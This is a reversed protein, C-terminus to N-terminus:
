RGPFVERGPQRLRFPEEPGPPTRPPMNRGRARWQSVYWLTLAVVAAVVLAAAAYESPRFARPGRAPGTM